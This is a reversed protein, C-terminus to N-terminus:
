SFTKKKWKRNHQRAATKCNKDAKYSLNLGLSEYILINIKKGTMSTKMASSSCWRNEFACVIPHEHALINM